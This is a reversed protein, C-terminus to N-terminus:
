VAFPSSAHRYYSQFDTQLLAVNNQPQETQPSDQPALIATVDPSIKNSSITVSAVHNIASEPSMSAFPLRLREGVLRGNRTADTQSNSRLISEFTNYVGFLNNGGLLHQGIIGSIAGQALGTSFNSLYESADFDRPRTTEFRSYDIIPRM